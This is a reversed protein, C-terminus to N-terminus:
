QRRRKVNLDGELGREKYFREEEDYTLYRWVLPENTEPSRGCYSRHGKCVDTIHSYARIGYYNGAERQSLFMKDTTICYLPKCLYPKPVKNIDSLMQRVKDTHTKGYMPNNKGVLKGKNAKSIKERTKISVPKGYRGNKEGKHTESKLKRTEESIARHEYGGGEINYGIGKQASNYKEIWYKEKESAEQQTSVVELIEHEFNDWGYKQIASDFIRCGKYGKGGAWRDEPKQSTVGVYSKGNIKNIHRYITYKIDEIDSMVLENWSFVMANYLM